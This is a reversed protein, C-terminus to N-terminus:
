KTDQKGYRGCGDNRHCNGANPCGECGCSCSSKGAKKDKVYKVIVSIVLAILVAAVVITGLNNQLFQLM